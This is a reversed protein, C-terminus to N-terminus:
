QPDYLMAKSGSIRRSFEPSATALRLIAVDSVQRSLADPSRRSRVSTACCRAGGSTSSRWPRCRARSRACPRTPSGRARRCTWCACPPRTARWGFLNAIQMGGFGLQVARRQCREITPDNRLEDATSPNLMVYLLSPGQGWVRELGYRYRECPSYYARSTVGGASHEREIM